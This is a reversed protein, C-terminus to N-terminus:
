DRGARRAGASLLVVVGGSGGLERRATRFALVHESAPVSTLWDAIAARLVAHGGVSHRGRGVIVLVLERGGARERALFGLLRRRATDADLRHLDLTATPTGGVRRRASAGLDVRHGEVYDEDLEVHFAPEPRASALANPRLSRPPPIRRVGERLPVAGTTTMADAFTKANPPRVAAKLNRFPRHSTTKKTM